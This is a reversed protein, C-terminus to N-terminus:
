LSARVVCLYVRACVGLLALLAGGRQRGVGTRGGEAVVVEVGGRLGVCRVLSPLFSCTVRQNVCCM